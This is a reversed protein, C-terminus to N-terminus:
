SPDVMPNIRIIPTARNPPINVHRPHPEQPGCGPLLTSSVESIGGGSSREDLSRGGPHHRGVQSTARNPLRSRRSSSDTEIGLLLLCGHYVRLDTNVYIPFRGVLRALVLKAGELDQLDATHVVVALLLGITDVVGPGMWGGAATIIICRGGRHFITPCCEGLVVAGCWIFSPM